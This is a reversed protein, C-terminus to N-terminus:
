GSVVDGWESEKRKQNNDSALYQDHKLLVVPAFPQWL